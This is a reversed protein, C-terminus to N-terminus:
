QQRLYSAPTDVSPFSRTEILHRDRLHTDQPGHDREEVVYQAGERRQYAEVQHRLIPDITASAMANHQIRPRRRDGSDVEGHYRHKQSTRYSPSGHATEQDCALLIQGNMAQ